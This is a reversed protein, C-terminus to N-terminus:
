PKQPKPFLFKLTKSNLGGVDGCGVVGLTKGKLEMGIPQGLIGAKFSAVGAPIQSCRERITLEIHGSHARFTGQIHFTPHLHLMLHLHLM